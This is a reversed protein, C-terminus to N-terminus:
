HYSQECSRKEKEEMETVTFLSKDPISGLFIPGYACHQDAIGTDLVEREATPGSEMNLFLNQKSGQSCGSFVPFFALPVHDTCFCPM